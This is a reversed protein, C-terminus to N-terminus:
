RAAEDLSLMRPVFGGFPFDAHRTLVIAGGAGAQDALTRSLLAAAEADLADFPEDLIWLAASPQLFLRALAVRRRQGQSLTRVPRDRLGQLGARRLAAEAQGAQQGQLRAVFDLAEGVALDGNIANAHGIYLSAGRREVRGAEPAALGALVRLLSTKGRGNAGRVWLLEGPHLTLTLARLLVREGRRVALDTVRLLPDPTTAVALTTCPSAPGITAAAWQRGGPPPARVLTPPERGNLAGEQRRQSATITTSGSARELRPTGRASAPAGDAVASRSARGPTGGADLVSRM